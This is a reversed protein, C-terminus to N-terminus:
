KCRALRVYQDLRYQADREAQELLEEAAAHDRELLASFRVEDAMFGRIDARTQKSDLVFPNLGERERRPDFRYLSWYGCAVAQKVHAEAHRLGGRIGHNACPSYAIILSPGDYSEAEQIARLTHAKDAGMAVQAVYVYGYHMVMSGLDKKRTKKGAADFKAVAGTPTAKSTQGGTNSYMETDFVLININEGSALVHDLGGYGIDYAWGDGGFVWHSRKILYESRSQLEGLANEEGCASIADLLAEARARTGAAEDFGEIWSQLSKRVPLHKVQELARLACARLRSRENKVGLLMGLGYEANDEFLSFGWSPGHGFRDVTYSISPAGGGWVTSCGASCSIMLRDGYLQTVLKAYPTEGCGACASSFEILPKRFQSTAVNVDGNPVHSDLTKDFAWECLYREREPLLPTMSLASGRRPCTEVCCGCGTCDQASIAMHYQLGDYRTAATRYGEPSGSLQNADLLLPRLVAHSCVFACRNCQLCAEPNWVPVLASIERKEFATLGLPFTGDERGSFTSVPLKDGQQRLMVASVQEVFLPREEVGAPIDAEEADSANLEIEQFARCGQEIAAFNMELTQKGQKGYAKQANDRMGRVADPMSVLQTLAFFAAEMIIGIHRGMGLEEAIRRADICYLRIGREVIIRRMRQPMAKLLSQRDLGTNLLFTGGRKIDDLMAYKSLYSECHCAVFDAQTVGYAARIPADAFRLHSITLGGSKKADYAFYAQVYKESSAGIIKIASKNASVTGDAGMGWIKCSLTGQPLPDLADPSRQLSLQTVDDTIGLTFPQQPSQSMLNSFVAAVDEPLLEKSAIGYRGGIVLVEPRTAYLATRVDLFLPEGAGGPEKTRDLVAIRRVSAPIAELFREVAFPRYLHVEVLGYRAGKENLCSITSKITDCASGMAIIIGDPEEHGFYQYLRYQRGTEEGLRDMYAQVIDPLAEYFTNVSERLQFFIDPDLTTGRLVPHDPNLARKKFRDVAERDLLRELVDKPLIEISQMEHSTRFGDFFHVFPIRSRIASLHAVAAMDHCEQVCSSSLLAVGTQRAAMVDQHDGFISLANSALSRASVHFVGPLLEGAMKYMNPLMLLLGQSATYTSSLAGAQLSGHMAGAAGGESQMEKVLVPVGFLNQEGQAAWEDIAEAMGSSPTIPYIAAVETFQYSVMAAATNGDLTLIKKGRKAHKM